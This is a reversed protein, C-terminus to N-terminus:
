ATPWGSTSWRPWRASTAPSTPPTRRSCGRRPRATSTRAGSSRRRSICTARCTPWSACSSRATTRPWCSATRTARCSRTGSAGASSPGSPSTRSTPTSAVVAPGTAAVAQQFTTHLRGTTPTSCCRCRRSTPRASSPTCGGTSCCASWRTPRRAPGGAGVCRHLLRDQHAQRAAPGARLVPGARAAQPQRPHVPPRGVRLHGGPAPRDGDRLDAVARGPRARRHRRRDGGHGRAGPHAAAGARRPRAPPGARGRAGRALSERAAAAALSQSPPRSRAACSARSAAARPGAARRQHGRAVPRAARRQPHLGRDPHRLRRAAPSGGSRSLSTAATPDRRALEWVLLPKVDHGALPKGAAIVAAALAPAGDRAPRSSGATRARRGRLGAAHGTAPAPRRVRRRRTLEPQAASGRRSTM